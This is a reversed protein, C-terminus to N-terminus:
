DGRLAHLPDIRIATRAPLWTATTAIAFLAAAAIAFTVPDRGSVGYLLTSLARTVATVFKPARGGRNRVTRNGSASSERRVFGYESRRM